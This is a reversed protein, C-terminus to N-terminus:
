MEEGRQAAFVARDIEDDIYPQLAEMVKEATHRHIRQCMSCDLDPEHYECTWGEEFLVYAVRDAPDGLDERIESVM